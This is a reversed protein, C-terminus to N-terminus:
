SLSALYVHSKLVKHSRDLQQPGVVCMPFSIKRAKYVLFREHVFSKLQGYRACFLHAFYLVSLKMSRLIHLSLTICADNGFVEYKTTSFM